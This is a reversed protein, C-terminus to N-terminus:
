NSKAADPAGGSKADAVAAPPPPPGKAIVAALRTADTCGKTGCITRIKALNEKAREVAGKAVLAEGQGALAAVDNPELLLAERYFRISKGSLGQQLAIQALVIFAERNRPDVVLATEILGNAKELQGAARAAKGQDLLTVSRADIQNDPRQGSLATTVCMLALAAAVSVSTFRM